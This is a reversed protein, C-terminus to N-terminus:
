KLKTFTSSIFTTYDTTSVPMHYPEHHPSIPIAPYLYELEVILVYKYLICFTCLVQTHLIYTCMNGRLFWEALIGHDLIGGNEGGGGGGLFLHSHIYIYIYM